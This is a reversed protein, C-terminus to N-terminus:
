GSEKKAFYLCDKGNKQKTQVEDLTINLKALFSKTANTPENNQYAINLPPGFFELVEDSQKSPFNRAYFIIRRPTYFFEINDASDGCLRYKKLIAEFKTLVNGFEKKIASFPLEETFIEILLSSTNM